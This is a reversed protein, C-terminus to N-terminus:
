WGFLGHLAILRSRECRRGASAWDVGDGVKLATVGNVKTAAHKTPGDVMNEATARAMVFRSGGVEEELMKESVLRM